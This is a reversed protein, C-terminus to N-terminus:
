YAITYLVRPLIIKSCLPILSTLNEHQIHNLVQSITTEEFWNDDNDPYIPSRQCKDTLSRTHSSHFNNENGNPPYYYYQFQHSKFSSSTQHLDRPLIINNFQNRRCNTSQVQMLKISQNQSTHAISNSCVPKKLFYYIKVHIM